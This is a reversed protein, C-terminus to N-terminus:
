ITSITFFQHNIMGFGSLAGVLLASNYTFKFKKLRMTIRWGPWCRRKQLWSAWVRIGSVVIASVIIIPLFDTWYTNLGLQTLAPSIIALLLAGLATGYVHGSGGTASTGGVVVAAIVKMELNNGVTTTVRTGQTGLITATFGLLAGAIVYTLILTKNVNIGAYM